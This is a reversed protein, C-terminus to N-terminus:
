VESTTVACLRRLLQVYGREVNRVEKYLLIEGSVEMSEEEDGHNASLTGIYAM